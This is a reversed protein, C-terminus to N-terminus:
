RDLAVYLAPRGSALSQIEVPEQGYVWRCLAMHSLVREAYIRSEQRPLSELLALPDEFAAQTALWRDLWGPGGNYAAFIRTLDGDQHFNAILWEVYAQGLRMNLGPEYLQAPARRFQYGAAMDDATSALLQMLGRANSRSVADIDFRSEQRIIGFLVARDVTFGTDPAYITHPCYGSAVEPGGFEAVRLQAAPTALAVALALFTRDEAPTLFGHLRALEAEADELRGLQALAAARRAAPYRELFARAEELELQPRVLDLHPTQGLQALALQGYFTAPYDAALRLDALAGAADGVALRARAAWYYGSSRNWPGFYPWRAATEFYGIAQPYDRLRFAAVGAWWAAEGSRPGSVHQRAITIVRDFDAEGMALALQDMAARAAATDGPPDSVAGPPPRYRGNAPAPPAAARRPRVGLARRYVDQAVALDGHRRLWAGYESYGAGSGPRRLRAAEVLPVLVDDEVHELQSRATGWQGSEAAEFAAAYRRADEDSLAVIRTEAMAPHVCAWVLLAGALIKGLM